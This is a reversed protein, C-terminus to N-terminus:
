WVHIYEKHKVKFCREKAIQVHKEFNEGQNNFALPGDAIQM